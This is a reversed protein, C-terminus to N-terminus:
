KNYKVQIKLTATYEGAEVKCTYIGAPYNTKVWVKKCTGAEFEKETITFVENDKQNYIKVM